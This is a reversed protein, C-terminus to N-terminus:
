FSLEYKKLLLNINEVKKELLQIQKEGNGSKLVATQGNLSTLELEHKIEDRLAELAAPYANMIQNNVTFKGDVENQIRSFERNMYQSVSSNLSQFEKALNDYSEKFCKDIERFETLDRCISNLSGCCALSQANLKTISDEYSDFSYKISELKNLAYSMKSSIDSRFGENFSREKELELLRAEYENLLDEHSDLSMKLSDHKDDLKAIGGRIFGDSLENSRIKQDVECFNKKNQMDFDDIRQLLVDVYSRLSQLNSKSEQYNTAIDEFNAIRQGLQYIKEQIEKIAPNQTDDQGFFNNNM